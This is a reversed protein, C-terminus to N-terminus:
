LVIAYIYINGSLRSYAKRFYIDAQQWFGIRVLNGKALVLFLSWSWKRQHLCNVGKSIKNLSCYGIEFFNMLPVAKAVINEEVDILSPNMYPQHGAVWGGRDENAVIDMEARGISLLGGLLQPFSKQGKGFFLKM